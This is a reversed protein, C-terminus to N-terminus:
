QDPVLFGEDNPYLEEFYLLLKAPPYIKNLAHKEDKTKNDWSLTCNEIFNYGESKLRKKWEESPWIDRTCEKLGITEDKWNFLYMRLSPTLDFTHCDKILESMTNFTDPLVRFNKLDKLLKERIKEDTIKGRKEIIKREVLIKIAELEKVSCRDLTDTTYLKRLEEM